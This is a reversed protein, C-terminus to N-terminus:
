YRNWVNIGAESQKKVFWSVDKNCILILNSL